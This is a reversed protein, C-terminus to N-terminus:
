VHLLLVCPLVHEFVLFHGNHMEDNVHTVTTICGCLVVGSLWAEGPLWKVVGGQM